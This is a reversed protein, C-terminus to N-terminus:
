HNSTLESVELEEDSFFKIAEKGDRLNRWFEDINNAGPFRGSMGIIAIGDFTSEDQKKSM